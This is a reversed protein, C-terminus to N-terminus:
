QDSESESGDGALLARAVTQTRVTLTTTTRSSAQLATNIAGFLDDFRVTGDERRWDALYRPELGCTPCPRASGPQPTGAGAVESDSATHPPKALPEFCGRCRGLGLAVREALAVVRRLQGQLSTATGCFAELADALTSKEPGDDVDDSERSSEGQALADLDGDSVSELVELKADVVDLALLAEQRDTVYPRDRDGEDTATGGASLEDELAAPITTALSAFAAVTSITESQLRTVERMSEFLTEPRELIPTPAPDDAGDRRDPAMLAEFCDDCVTVLASEHVPEALPVDGVTVVRVGDTGPQQECHRCTYGDREFVATRDARWDSDRSDRQM